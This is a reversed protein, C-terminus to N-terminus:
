QPQGASQAAALLWQRHFDQCFASSIDLDGRSANRRAAEAMDCEIWIVEAKYGAAVMARFVSEFRERDTALMETVIGRREAVARMAVTAGIAHMPEALGDPFDYYGGRSLSIFIEAADVIVFGRKYRRRRTWTKGSSVGGLLLVFRPPGSGPLSSDDFFREAEAALDVRFPPPGDEESTM